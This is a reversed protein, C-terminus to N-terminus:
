SRVAPESGWCWGSPPTAPISSSSIAPSCVPGVRAPPQEEARVAPLDIAQLDAVLKAAM